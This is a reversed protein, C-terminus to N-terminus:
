APSFNLRTLLILFQRHYAGTWVFGLDAGGAIEALQPAKHAGLQVLDGPLWSTGGGGTGAVPAGGDAWSCGEGALAVDAGLMAAYMVKMNPADTHVRFSVQGAPVYLDGTVKHAIVAERGRWLGRQLYLLEDGHSGYSGMFYGALPDSGAAATSDMRRYAVQPAEGEALRCGGRHQPLASAPLRVRLTAGHRDCSVTAPTREASIGDRHRQVRASRRLEDAAVGRQSPVAAGGADGLLQQADAAAGAADVREAHQAGADALEPAPPESSRDLAQGVGGHPHAHAEASPLQPSTSADARPNVATTGASDAVASEADDDLPSLVPDPALQPPPTVAQAAPKDGSDVSVCAAAPSTQAADSLPLALSRELAARSSKLSPPTGPPPESRSRRVSRPVLVPRRHATERGTPRRRPTLSRRRRDANAASCRRAAGAPGCSPNDRSLRSRSRLQVRPADRVRGPSKPARVAGPFLNSLISDSSYGSYAISDDLFFAQHQVDDVSATASTIYVEFITEGVNALMGPNLAARMQNDPTCGFVKVLDAASYATGTLKGFRETVHLVHGWVDEQGPSVQWWGCLAGLRAQYIQAAQDYNQDAIADAQAQRLRRLSDTMQVEEAQRAFAAAAFFDEEAAASDRSELLMDLRRQQADIHGAYEHWAAADTAPAEVHALESRLAPAPSAAPSIDDNYRAQGDQGEPLCSRQVVGKTRRSSPRAPAVQPQVKCPSRVSSPRMASM